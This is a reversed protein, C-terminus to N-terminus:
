ALMRWGDVKEEHVWSDRHFADRVLTLAMPRYPTVV